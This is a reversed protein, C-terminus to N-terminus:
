GSHKGAKREVKLLNSFPRSDSDSTRFEYLGDGDGNGEVATYYRPSIIFKQSLNQREDILEFMQGKDKGQLDYIHQGLFRLSKHGYNLM